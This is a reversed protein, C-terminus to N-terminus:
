ECGRRFTAREPDWQYWCILEDLPMTGFDEDFGTPRDCHTCQGGDMLQGCLRFLAALPHLAGAAEYHVDGEGKTVHGAADLRFEAVAMWVTPEEDDSFRIQISRAGNRGVLDIAATLRPDEHDYPESV